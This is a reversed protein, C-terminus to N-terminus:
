PLHVPETEGFIRDHEVGGFRYHVYLQLPRRERGNDRSPASAGGFGLITAKPADSIQLRSQRVKAMLCETVDVVDDELATAERLRASRGYRAHLIELGRISAEESRRRQADRTVLNRYHEAETAATARRTDATDSAAAPVAVEASAAKAAPRLALWSERLLRILLPPLAWAAVVLAIERAPPTGASEPWLELPLVFRLGSRCLALRLALGRQRVVISWRLKTLGDGLAKSCTAQVALGRVTLSPEVKVSFGEVPRYKARASLSGGGEPRLTLLTGFHRSPSATRRGLGIQIHPDAGYAVAFSGRVTRTLWPYATFSMTAGDASCQVRQQVSCHSLANRSIAVDLAPQTSGVPLSVSGRATTGQGLASSAGITVNSAGAGNAGQVHMTCGATLRVGGVVVQLSHTVASYQLRYRRRLLASHLGPPGASAALTFSGQVGLLRQAKLETHRRVLQTVRRELSQLRDEPLGLVGDGVDGEEPLSEALRIGAIGYRDYFTRLADDGLVRYARHVRRFAGEAAESASAGSSVQKDPHYLRSLDRFAARVDDASADRSINLADYLDFDGEEM